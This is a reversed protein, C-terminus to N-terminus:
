PLEGDLGLHVLTGLFFAVVFGVAVLRTATGLGGTLIWVGAAVVALLPLNVATSHTWSRHEGTVADVTPGVLAVAATGALAALVAAGAMPPVGLGLSAAFATLGPWYAVALALVGAGVVARFARVAKRRPISKHHDVDPYIAGLFATAGSGVAAVAALLPTATATYVASAALIAIVVAGIRGWRAHTRYGPVCGSLVGARLHTRAPSGHLGTTLGDGPAM